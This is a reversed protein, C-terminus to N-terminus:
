RLVVHSQALEATADIKQQETIGDPWILRADYLACVRVHGLTQTAAETEVHGLLVAKAVNAETADVALDLQTFTGDAKEGLVTGSNYPGGVVTIADRSLGAVESAVHASAKPKMTEVTM